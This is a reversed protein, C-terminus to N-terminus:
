ATDHEAQSGHRLQSGHPASNIIGIGSGPHQAGSRGTVESQAMGYAADEHSAGVMCHGLQATGASGEHTVGFEVM